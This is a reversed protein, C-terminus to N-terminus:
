ASNSYLTPKPVIYPRPGEGETAARRAEQFLAATNDTIVGPVGLTPANVYTGDMSNATEDNVTEGSTEGLRWYGRPNDKLVETTYAM